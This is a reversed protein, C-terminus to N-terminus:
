SCYIKLYNNAMTKASFRNSHTKANLGLKKRLYVSSTMEEICAAISDIDPDTFLANEKDDLMDVVGGVPSTIIPLGTGMAEILTMPMGEFLSPLIFVDSKYLEDYINDTLGMFHIYEEAELDSVLEEITTKLEGAGFLYLSINNYSRHAKVFARVLNGHNKAEMFRGVHIFKLCDTENYKEIPKCKELLIGNFVVPVNEPKMHYLECVTKKVEESLAVPRVNFLEFLIKYIKQNSSTAEKSAVNHVTHVKIKIGVMTAALQAYKCAYIHSHVVEPEFQKMLKALRFICTIDLGPKKNLVVVDIGNRKLNDTISTSKTYLSVVQVNHGQKKLEISLNQCMTEAGALDLVPIVQMINM